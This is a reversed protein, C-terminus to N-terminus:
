KSPRPEFQKGLNDAFSVQLYLTLPWKLNAFSSHEFKVAKIDLKIKRLFFLFSFIGCFKDYAAFLIPVKFTLREM